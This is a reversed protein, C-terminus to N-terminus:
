TSEPRQGVRSGRASLAEIVPIFHNGNDAQRIIQPNVGRLRCFSIVVYDRAPVM